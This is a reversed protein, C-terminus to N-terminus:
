GRNHLGSDKQKKCIQIEYLWLNASFRSIAFKLILELMSCYNKVKPLGLTQEMTTSVFQYNYLTKWNISTILSFPSFLHLYHIHSNSIFKSSVDFMWRDFKNLTEQNFNLNFNFCFNELVFRLSLLSLELTRVTDYIM